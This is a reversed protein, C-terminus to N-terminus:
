ASGVSGDSVVPRRLALAGAGAQTREDVALGRGVFRGLHQGVHAATGGTLVGFEPKPLEDGCNLAGVDRHEGGTPQLQPDRLEKGLLFAVDLLV